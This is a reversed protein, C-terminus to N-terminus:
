TGPRLRAHLVCGRGRRAGGDRRAHLSRADTSHSHRGGGRRLGRGREALRHVSAVIHRRGFELLQPASCSESSGGRVLLAFGQMCRDFKRRTDTVFSNVILKEFLLKAGVQPRRTGLDGLM